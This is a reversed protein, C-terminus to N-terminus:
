QEPAIQNPHHDHRSTAYAYPHHFVRAAEHPACALEFEEQAPEDRVHVILEDSDPNWLLTVTIGNGQRQDLETMDTSM